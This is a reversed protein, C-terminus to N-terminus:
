AARGRGRGGGAGARAPHGVVGRACRWRDAGRRLRGDRCVWAGPRGCKAGDAGPGRQRPDRGRARRGALVHDPHTRGPRRDAGRADGRLPGPLVRIGDRVGPLGGGGVRHGPGAAPRARRLAPRFLRRARAWGAAPLTPATRGPPHLPRQDARRDPQARRGLSEAPLRGSRGAGGRRGVTRHPLAVADAGARDWLGRHRSRGARIGAPDADPWSLARRAGDATRVLCVATDGPVHRRPGGPRGTFPPTTAPTSTPEVTPQVTM